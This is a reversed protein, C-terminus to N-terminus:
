EWEFDFNDAKVDPDQSGESDIGGYGIDSSDGIKGVVPSNALLDENETQVVRMSPIIYTKRMM